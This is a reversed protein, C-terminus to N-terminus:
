DIGLWRFFSERTIEYRNGTLRGALAGSEILAHFTPRSPPTKIRTTRLYREAERLTIFQPLDAIGPKFLPNVPSPNASIM